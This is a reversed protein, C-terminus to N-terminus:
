LTEERKRKKERDDDKIGQLRQREIDKLFAWVGKACVERAKKKGHIDKFEGVKGPVRPDSAFDAYGQYIPVGEVMPVIKYTPVNFGLTHCLDPILGPYSTPSTSRERPPTTTTTPTFPVLPSTPAQTKKPLPTQPAIPAKPSKVSGSSLMLNRSILWDVALKSIYRKADKKRTFIALSSIPEPSEKITVSCRFSQEAIQTETYEPGPNISKGQYHELLKGVWNIDGIEEMLAHSDLLIISIDPTTKTKKTAPSGSRSKALQADLVQRDIQAQLEQERELDDLSQFRVGFSSSGVEPQPQPQAGAM